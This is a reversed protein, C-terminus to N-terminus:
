RGWWHLLSHSVPSFLASWFIAAEGGEEKWLGRASLQGKSILTTQLKQLSQHRVITFHKLPRGCNMKEDWNDTLPRLALHQIHYLLLSWHTKSDNYM